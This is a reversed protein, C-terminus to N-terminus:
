VPAIPHITNMVHGHAFRVCPAIFFNLFAPVWEKAVHTHGIMCYILYTGSNFDVRIDSKTVDATEYFLIACYKSWEAAWQMIAEQQPHPRLFYVNLDNKRWLKNLFGVADLPLPCTPDGTHTCTHTHTLTHTHAHTHTHTHTHAHTHTHTHTHARTCTFPFKSGESTGMVVYM